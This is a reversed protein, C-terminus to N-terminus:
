TIFLDLLSKLNLDQIINKMLAKGLPTILIIGLDEIKRLYDNNILFEIDSEWVESFVEKLDQIKIATRYARELYQLAQNYQGATKYINGITNLTNRMSSLDGLQEDIKLAESAYGLAPNLLGQTIKMGALNNLCLSKRNLDGSKETIELASNLNKIANPIDGNDRYIIGLSNLVSFKLVNPTDEKM